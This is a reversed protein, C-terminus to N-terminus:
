LGCVPSGGHFHPCGWLLSYLIERTCAHKHFRTPRTLQLTFHLDSRLEKRFRTCLIALWSAAVSVSQSRVCWTCTYLRWCNLAFTFPSRAHLIACCCCWDSPRRGHMSKAKSNKLVNKEKRNTHRLGLQEFRHAAPSAARAAFVLFLVEAKRTGRIAHRRRGGSVLVVVQHTRQEKDLSKRRAPTLARACNCSAHTRLRGCRTRLKVSSKISINRNRALADESSIKLEPKPSAKKWRPTVDLNVCIIQQTWSLVMLLFSM